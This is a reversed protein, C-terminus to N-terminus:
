SLLVFLFFFLKRYNRQPVKSQWGEGLDYRIKKASIKGSVLLKLYDMIKSYDYKKNPHTPKAAPRRSCTRLRYDHPRLAAFPAEKPREKAAADV